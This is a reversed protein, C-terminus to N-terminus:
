AAERQRQDFFSKKPVITTEFDVDVEFRGHEGSKDPRWEGLGIGFGARQVLNLIAQQTLAQADFEFNLIMSWNRFEPRYRLDTTGAGVRVTDERMLPDDTELAILNNVPDDPIIFLSKKLLTKELGIDKHAAGVLCSKVGGAPFGFRGDECVYAADRFEQEPDRVDRNKVRVGAHKDRMMKIAKESWKHQIFPSIGIIRTTLVSQQMEELTIVNAM